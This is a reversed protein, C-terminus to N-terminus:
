QIAYFEVGSVLDDADIAVQVQMVASECKIDFLMAEEGGATIIALGARLKVVPGCIGLMAEWLKEIEELSMAASMEDDMLAACGEWDGAILADVFAKCVPSIQAGRERDLRKGTYDDLTDGEPGEDFLDGLDIVEESEEPEASESQEGACGWLLALALPLVLLLTIKTKM